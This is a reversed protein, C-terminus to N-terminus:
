KGKPPPARLQMPSFKAQISNMRTTAVRAWRQRKVGVGSEPCTAGSARIVRWGSRGTLSCTRRRYNLDPWRWATGVLAQMLERCTRASHDAAQRLAGADPGTAVTVATLEHDPAIREIRRAEPFSREGRRLRLEHLLRFNADALDRHIMWQAARLEGRDIKRLICVYDCVLAEALNQAAADDMRLDPVEAVVRHYFPEWAPGGKLFHWGPRIVVALDQLGRLLRGPRRHLGLRMLWRALCLRGAPLIVFDVETGALVANVKPVGGFRPPRMAYAKVEEGLAQLWDAKAFRSPNGTIIQFDWDSQADARWIADTAERQRSGILVLAAVEPEAQAWVALKEALNAAANV